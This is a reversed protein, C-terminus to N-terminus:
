LPSTPQWCHHIVHMCACASPLCNTSHLDQIFDTAISICESSLLACSAATDATSAMCVCMSGVARGAYKCLKGAASLEANCFIMCLLLLGGAAPCCGDSGCSSLAAEAGANCTVPLWCCASGPAAAAVQVGAADLGTLMSGGATPVCPWCVEAGPVGRFSM